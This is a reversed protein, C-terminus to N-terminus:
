NGPRFPEPQPYPKYKWGPGKIEEPEVQIFYNAYRGRVSDCNYYEFSNVRTEFTENVENPDIATFGQWINGPIMLCSNLYITRGQKFLKKATPKSVQEYRKGNITPNIRRM